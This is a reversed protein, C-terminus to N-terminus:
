EDSGPRITDGVFELRQCREMGSDYRFGLSILNTETLSLERTSVLTELSKEDKEQNAANLVTQFHFFHDDPSPSRGFLAHEKDLASHNSHVNTCTEDPAVSHPGAGQSIGKRDFAAWRFELETLGSPYSLSPKSEDESDFSVVEGAFPVARAFDPSPYLDRLKDAKAPTALQSITIDTERELRRWGETEVEGLEDLSGRDSSDACEFATQLYQIDLNNFDLRPPTYNRFITSAPGPTSFPRIGEPNQAVQFASRSASEVLSNGNRNPTQQLDNFVITPSGSRNDMDSISVLEESEIPMSHTEIVTLDSSLHNDSPSGTVLPLSVRLPHKPPLTAFTEALWCPLYSNQSDLTSKPTNLSPWRLCKPHIVKGTPSYPTSLDGECPFGEGNLISKPDNPIANAPCFSNELSGHSHM